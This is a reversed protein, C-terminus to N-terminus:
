SGPLIEMMSGNQNTHTHLTGLALFSYVYKCTTTTAAVNNQTRRQIIVFIYTTPKRISDHICELLILFFFVDRFFKREIRNLSQPSISLYLSLSWTQVSVCVIQYSRHYINSSQSLFLSVQHNQLDRVFTGNQPISYRARLQSATLESDKASGGKQYRQRLESANMSSDSM